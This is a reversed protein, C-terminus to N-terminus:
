APRELRHGPALVAVSDRKLSDYRALSLGIRETCDTEGCECVFQWTTSDDEPDVKGALARISGNVEGLLDVKEARDDISGNVEGLPAGM